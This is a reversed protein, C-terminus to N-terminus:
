CAATKSYTHIQKFRIWLQKAQDKVYEESRPIKAM